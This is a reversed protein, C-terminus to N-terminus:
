EEAWGMASSGDSRLGHARCHADIRHQVDGLVERGSGEIRVSVEHAQEESYWGQRTAEELTERESDLAKNKTRYEDKLRELEIIEPTEEVTGLNDDTM